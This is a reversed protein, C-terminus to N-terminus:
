SVIRWVVILWKLSILLAQELAIEPADQMRVEILTHDDAQEGDEVAFAQVHSLIEDFVKTKDPTQAFVDLLREFGFMENNANVTEIIGDSWLYIVDEHTMEFYTPEYRFQAQGLIGLPLHKSKIQKIERTLTNYIVGEPLGGGM